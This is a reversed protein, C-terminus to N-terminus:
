QRALITGGNGVAWAGYTSTASVDNLFASSGSNDDLWTAGGDDTRLIAGGEGVAYAVEGDLASVGYLRQQTPADQEIWTRGGDDTRVVRGVGGVVWGHQADGFDIAWWFDEPLDNIQQWSQGGNDTRYVDEGIAFGVQDTAFAIDRLGAWMTQTREKCAGDIHYIDSDPHEDHGITGAYARRDDL